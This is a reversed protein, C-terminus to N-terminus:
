LFSPETTEPAPSTVFLQQIEEDTWAQEVKWNTEPINVLIETGDELVKIWDYVVGTNTDKTAKFMALEGIKFLWSQSEQM